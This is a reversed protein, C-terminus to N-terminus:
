LRGSRALTPDNAVPSSTLHPLVQPVAATYIYQIRDDTTQPGTTKMSIGGVLSSTETLEFETSM